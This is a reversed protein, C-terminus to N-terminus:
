QADVINPIFANRELIEIRTGDHIIHDDKMIGDVMQILRGADVKMAIRFCGCTVMSKEVFDTTQGSRAPSDEDGIARTEINEGHELQLVGECWLDFPM